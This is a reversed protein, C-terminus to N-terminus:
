CREFDEIIKKIKEILQDKTLSNNSVVLDRMRRLIADYNICYKNLIELTEILVGGGHNNNKNTIM